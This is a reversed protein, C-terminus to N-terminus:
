TEACERIVVTDDVVKHVTGEKEKLWKIRAFFVRVPTAANGSDL